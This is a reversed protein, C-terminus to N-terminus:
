VVSNVAGVYLWALSLLVGAVAATFRRTIALYVGCLTCLLMQLGIMTYLRTSYDEGLFFLKGGGSFASALVIASIILLIFTVKEKTNKRWAMPLLVFPAALCAYFAYDIWNM